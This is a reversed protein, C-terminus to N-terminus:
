RQKIEVYIEERLEAIWQDFQRQKKDNLAFEAITEYDSEFDYERAERRALCKIIHFEQQSQFPEAIEGPSLERVARLYHKAIDYEQAQLELGEIEYWGLYGGNEATEEDMSVEKALEAFDEGDELRQLIEKIRQAAFVEDDETSQLAALIHRVNIKEGRRDVMEIIHFGFESEVIDSREGPELAFAAEEFALVFGGREILGLEGGRSGSGPDDSFQRALEAFDEGEDLRKQIDGIKELAAARAAEGPKTRILIHSIEVAEKMKPLSDKNANYFQQVERKSVSTGMFKEDRLMQITLNKRIEDEYNRRIKNIPMGLQQIIQEESGLRDLLTQMQQEVYADVRNQEPIVTDEEAKTLLIHRVILQDLTEKMMANFQEPNRNPDVNLQMALLYANQTVESELIIDDDVIAAIRDLVEQSIAASATIALILLSVVITTHRLIM